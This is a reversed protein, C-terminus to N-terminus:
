RDVVKYKVLGKIEELPRELAQSIEVEIAQPETLPFEFELKKLASNSLKVFALSIGRQQDIEVDISTIKITTESSQTNATLARPTNDSQNLVQRMIFRGAVWFSLALLLLPMWFQISQMILVQLRHARTM